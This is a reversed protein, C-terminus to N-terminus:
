RLSYKGKKNKMQYAKYSLMLAIVTDDNMGNPANYSVNHTKFNYEASYCSLERYQKNDSLISISKNEFAVQLDTVMENKSQATTTVRQLRSKMFGNKVLEAELLDTLPKGISNLEPLILKIKDKNEIIFNSLYNIQMQTSKDNFYDIYVQEGNENLVSIATYDGGGGAGWDIGVYWEEGEYVDKVCESFGEFVVGDDDLFEGLYESRFQNKPLIKRYEELREKPLIKELEETYKPDSWDITIVDKQEPDLGRNFYEWFFGTKFKPTSVLVMTAKKADVWPLITYFVDDSIYACEDVVCYDATYGRLSERQEASKFYIYSNNIFKIELTQANAYKVIGSGDVADTIMRYINRAQNLTPSVSFIKKHEWNIGAYLLLNVLMLTKGKQRSSRVVVTKSYHTYKLAVDIVDKQYQLPKFGVYEAM